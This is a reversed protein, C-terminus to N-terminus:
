RERPGSALKQLTSVAAADWFKKKKKKRAAGSPFKNTWGQLQFGAFSGMGAAGRFFLSIIATENKSSHGGGGRLPLFFFFGWCWM